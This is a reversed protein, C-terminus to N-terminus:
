SIFLSGAPYAEIMFRKFQLNALLDLFTRLSATGAMIAMEIVNPQTRMLMEKAPFSGSETWAKAPIPKLLTRMFPSQNVVKLPKLPARWVM